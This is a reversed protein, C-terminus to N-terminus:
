AADEGLLEGAAARRLMAKSEELGYLAFFSGLRPGQEEGFLIEYLAKFWARLNEYGQAKGTEYVEHQITEAEADAPLAELRSLLDAIAAQEEATAARYRKNPKVFDRYYAIAHRVLGDLIPAKEATAAPAYRSIFGWLVAPDESNCASALKLLISFSLHAEERPPRGDHIHWAPNELRKAPDEETEFRELFSLYEDVARPIVDFYLRKAARPKQFM